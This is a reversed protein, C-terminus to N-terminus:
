CIRKLMDIRTIGSQAELPSLSYRHTITRKDALFFLLSSLAVSRCVMTLPFYQGRTAGLM